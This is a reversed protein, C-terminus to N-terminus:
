LLASFILDPESESVINYFLLGALCPAMIWWALQLRLTQPGPTIPRDMLAMVAACISIALLLMARKDGKGWDIYAFLDILMWFMGIVSVALCLHIWWTKPVASHSM